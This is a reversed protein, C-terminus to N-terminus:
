PVWRNSKRSNEISTLLQLNEHVHLGCVLRGRLPVQHDVTLNLRKALVYVNTIRRHDAWSPTATLKSALYGARLANIKGLNAGRWRRRAAKEKLPYAESWKRKYGAMKVANRANWSGTRSRCLGTNAAYYASSKLRNCEVCTGNAVQREALHGYRCPAGTFYRKLGAAIASKKAAKAGRM